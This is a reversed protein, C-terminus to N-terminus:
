KRGSKNSDSEIIKSIYNPLKSQALEFPNIGFANQGDLEYYAEALHSLQIQGHGRKEIAELFLDNMYGIHGKTAAWMLDRMYPTRLNLISIEFKENVKNFVNTYGLLMEDLIKHDHFQIPLLEVVSHNRRALQQVENKVRRSSGVNNNAILRKTDPQGVLLMSIKTSNLLSKLTDAIKQTGIASQTHRIVHQVEDIVILRVPSVNLVTNLQYELDTRDGKPKVGLTQLLQKYLGRPTANTEAEITLIQPMPSNFESGNIPPYKRQLVEILTSKGTGEKGVVLRMRGRTGSYKIICEVKKVAESLPTYKFRQAEFYQGAESIFPTNITM